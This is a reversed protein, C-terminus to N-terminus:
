FQMNHNSPFVFRVDIAPFTAPIKNGQIHVVERRSFLPFNYSLYVYLCFSQSVRGMPSNGPQACHQLLPNLFFNDASFKKKKQSAKILIRFCKLCGEKAMFCVTAWILPYNTSNNEYNACIERLSIIVCLSHM